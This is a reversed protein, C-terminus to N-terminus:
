KEKGWGKIVDDFQSRLSHKRDETVAWRLLLIFGAVFAASLVVLFFFAM